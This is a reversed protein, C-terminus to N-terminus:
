ITATPTSNVTACRINRLSSYRGRLRPGRNVFQRSSANESVRIWTISFNHVSLASVASEVGEYAYFVLGSTVSKSLYVSALLGCGYRTTSMQGGPVLHLPDHM